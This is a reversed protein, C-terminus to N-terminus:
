VCGNEEGGECAIRVEVSVIWVVDVVRVGLGVDLPCGGRGEVRGMGLRVWDEEQEVEGLGDWGEDGLAFVGVWGEKGSAALMVLGVRGETGLADAEGLAVLEAMGGTSGLGAWGEEGVEVLGGTAGLSVWVSGAGVGGM